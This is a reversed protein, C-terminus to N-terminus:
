EEPISACLLGAEGAKNWAERDVMGQKTWKDSLPAFERTYFKHVADKFIELDESMWAPTYTDLM